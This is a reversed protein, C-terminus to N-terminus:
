TSGIIRQLLRQQRTNCITDIFRNQYKLPKLICNSVESAKTAFPNWEELAAVWSSYIGALEFGYGLHFTILIFSVLFLARNGNFLRM